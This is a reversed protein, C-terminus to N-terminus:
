HQGLAADAPSSPPGYRRCRTDLSLNPSFFPESHCPCRPRPACTHHGRRQVARARASKGCLGGTWAEVLLLVLIQSLFRDSKMVETWKTCASWRALRKFSDSSRSSFGFWRVTLSTSTPTCACTSTGTLVNVFDRSNTNREQRSTGLEHHTHRPCSECTSGQSPRVRSTRGVGHTWSWHGLVQIRLGSRHMRTDTVTSCEGYGGMGQGLQGGGSSGERGTDEARLESTPETRRAGGHVMVFQNCRSNLKSAEHRILAHRRPVCVPREHGPRPLQVDPAHRPGEDPDPRGLQGALRRRLHGLHLAPEGLARNSM